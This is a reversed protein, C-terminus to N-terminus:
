MESEKRWGGVGWAVIVEYTPAGSYLEYQQNHRM